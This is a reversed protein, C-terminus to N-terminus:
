AIVGSRSPSKAQAFLVELDPTVAQVKGYFKSVGQLIVKAM